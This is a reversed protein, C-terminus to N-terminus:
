SGSLLNLLSGWSQPSVVAAPACRRLAPFQAALYLRAAAYAARCLDGYLSRDWLFYRRLIKPITFTVAVYDVEPLVEGAMRDAWRIARMQGCSPCIGRSKCSFPVIREDKDQCGPEVCRLRLFGFHPDGCRVYREMLDRVRPHLPGCRARYREDWSAILEDLGDEIIDKLDSRRRRPRYGSAPAILPAAM